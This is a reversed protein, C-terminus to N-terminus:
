SWFDWFQQIFKFSTIEVACEFSLVVFIFLSIHSHYKHNGNKRCQCNTQFYKRKYEISNTDKEHTHLM